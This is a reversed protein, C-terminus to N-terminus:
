PSIEKTVFQSGMSGNAWGGIVTSFLGAHGGAHVILLGGDRFKPIPGEFGPPMGEAIGDAGRTAAAADLTLADAMAQRLDSKSWGAAAFRAAHEPSIVLVADFVIALKTHGVSLLNVGLSRALEDPDRSLQDVIQRPSEGPFLTVASKGPAIGLEVSLPEWPSGAEDEAFCFGVKGPNGFTSRDIEGPRGGGVNRIVLQLARGITLNARTGQGLASMGSNMRIQTAIPGNVILVPGHPMTTALLGHMNFEDTCAAEVAALVVPLYEPRCGAMVANVAVKEVTCEVLDPPAIAIIEDAARSTGTLMQAVREPTPPVLPLGDSWGRDFMAEHIDESAGFSVRRATLSSGYAAELRSAHEPDVSLSGCGPRFDPLGPTAIETDTFTAWIERDWGVIRDTERGDIVRLLTPVVEIDNHFSLELSTDDIVGAVTEPFSPDDQSFVTIEGVRDSLDGLVPAVM